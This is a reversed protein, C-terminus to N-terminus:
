LRTNFKGQLRLHIFLCLKKTSAKFNVTSYKSSATITVTDHHYLWNEVEATDYRFTAYEM